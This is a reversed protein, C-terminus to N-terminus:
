RRRDSPEPEPVPGHPETYHALLGKLNANESMLRRAQEHLAQMRIRDREAKEEPTPEIKPLRNGDKDVAWGEGSVAAYGRPEDMGMDARVFAQM